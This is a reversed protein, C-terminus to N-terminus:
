KSIEDEVKITIVKDLQSDLFSQLTYGRAELIALIEGNIRVSKNTDKKLDKVKM